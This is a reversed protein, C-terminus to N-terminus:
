EDSENIDLYKKLPFFSQRAVQSLVGYLNFFLSPRAQSLLLPQGLPMSPLTRLFDKQM